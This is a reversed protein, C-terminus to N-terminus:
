EKNNIPKDDSSDEKKSFIFGFICKIVKIVKNKITLLGGLCFAILVQLLISVSGPDVYGWSDGPFCLFLAMLYVIAISLRRCNRFKPCIKNKEM